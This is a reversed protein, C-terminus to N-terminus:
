KILLNNVIADGTEEAVITALESIGDPGEIVANFFDKAVRGGTGMKGLSKPDTTKTNGYKDTWRSGKLGGRGKGAGKATWILQRPFQVSTRVIAGDQSKYRDKLKPLSAGISPSGARHNIDLANGRAQIRLIIDKTWDRIRNDRRTLDITAM